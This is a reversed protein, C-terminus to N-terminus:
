NSEIKPKLIFETMGTRPQFKFDEIWGYQTVGDQCTYGILGYPNALVAQFQTQTLPYEFTITENQAIAWTDNISAFVDENITENESLLADTEVVCAKDTINTAATINGSGDTFYLSEDTTRVLSERISPYHRLLNRVPTLRLNYETEPVAVGVATVGDVLGYEETACIPHTINQICFDAGETILSGAIDVKLTTIIDGDIGITVSVGSLTYTGDNSTSGSIVIEDGIHFINDLRIIEWAISIYKGAFSGHVCFKNEVCVIFTDNDYRWDRSNMQFRRRTVEIANYSAIFKTEAEYKGRSSSVNTKYERKAFLDYLGNVEEAEWKAYGIAIDNVFNDNVKHKIERPLELTFLVDDQYFHKYPEVRIVSSGVRHSDAEIGIGINHIAKMAEFLEKFSLKLSPVEGNTLRVDRILLGNTLTELAGCGNEATSYPLSNERGFYESYVRLCDNTYNEAIRSFTENILYSKAITKKCTSKGNISFFADPYIHLTSTGYPPSIFGYDVYAHVESVFWIKEGPLLTVVLNNAYFEQTKTYTTVSDKSYTHIYSLVPTSTDYDTGKLVYMEWRGNLVSGPMANTFKAKIYFSLTIETQCDLITSDEYEYIPTPRAPYTAGFMPFTEATQSNIQNFEVYTKALNFEIAGNQSAIGNSAPGDVVTMLDVDYEMDSAVVGEYVITKPKLITPAGIGGYDALLNIYACVSITFSTESEFDEDTVSENVVFTYKGNTDIFTKKITFTGNNSTTGGITISSKTNFEGFINDVKIVKTSAVFTGFTFSYATAECAKNDASVRSDLNVKQEYRNRFQMLCNENELGINTYCDEGCVFTAKDFAFKATYLHEYDEGEECNYEIKLTVVADIGYNLYAASLIQHADGYFRFSDLDGDFFDFFGHWNKDRKLRIKIGDWGVPEDIVTAVGLEDYTYDTITLKFM